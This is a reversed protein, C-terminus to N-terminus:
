ARASDSAPSSRKRSSHTASYLGLAIAPMLSSPAVGLKGAIAPGLVELVQKGSPHRQGRLLEKENAYSGEDYLFRDLENSFDQWSRCAARPGDLPLANLPERSSIWIQAAQEPRSHLLIQQLCEQQYASLSNIWEQLSFSPIAINM